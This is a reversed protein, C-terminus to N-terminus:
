DLKSNLLIVWIFRNPAIEKRIPLYDGKLDKPNLEFSLAFSTLSVTANQFEKRRSMKFIGKEKPEDTFEFAIVNAKKSYSLKIFPKFGDAVLRIFNTSFYLTSKDKSSVIIRAKPLGVRNKHTGKFQQLDDLEYITSTM